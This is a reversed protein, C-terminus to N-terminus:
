AEHRNEDHRSWMWFRFHYKKRKTYKKEIEDFIAILDLTAMRKLGLGGSDGVRFLQERNNSIYKLLLPKHKGGDIDYCM